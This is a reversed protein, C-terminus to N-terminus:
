WAPQGAGEPPPPAYQNWTRGVVGITRTRVHSSALRAWAECRTETSTSALALGARRPAEYELWVSLAQVADRDQMDAQIMLNAVWSM